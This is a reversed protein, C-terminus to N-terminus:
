RSLIIYDKLLTQLFRIRKGREETRIIPNDNFLPHYPELPISLKQAVQESAIDLARMHGENPYREIRDLLAKVEIMDREPMLVASPYVPDYAERKQMRSLAMLSYYQRPRSKIVATNALLDGLRQNKDSSSILILAVTGVSAWLDIPRFAWRILFDVPDPRNGDVKVVRIGVLMKGPTQGHNLMEFLLSYFMVEPIVLLWSILGINEIALLSFIFIILISYAFLFTLDLALAAIREWLIALDYTISIKQATTIDIKAM